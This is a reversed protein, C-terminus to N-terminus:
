LQLLNGLMRDMDPYQFPRMGGWDYFTFEGFYVKDEVQFFDVRVFPIGRSLKKALQRMLEFQSPCEFEPQHRPFCHDIMVPRFDMDYFNEYITDSKITLYMYKPEGNFCWWKYDRLENGTHDDLFRDVIIRPEINKYPWERLHYYYNKRLNKEVQKRVSEYNFTTKDRCLFAGGSDHTGKIVFQNPLMDFNIDNWKKAVVLNNVVYEWGIREAVFRKVAYKDAMTTYEPRRDYLKLWSMKENFSQPNRWNLRRGFRLRYLVSLYLKDPWIRCTILMLSYLVRRPNILYVSLPQM